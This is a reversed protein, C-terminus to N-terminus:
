SPLLELSELRVGVGTHISSSKPSILLQEPVELVGVSRCWRVDANSLKLLKSTKEPPRWLNILVIKEFSVFKSIWKQSRQGQWLSAFHLPSNFNLRKRGFCNTQLLEDLFEDSLMAMCRGLPAEGLKHQLSWDLGLCQRKRTKLKPNDFWLRATRFRAM